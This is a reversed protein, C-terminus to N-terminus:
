ANEGIPDTPGPGRRRCPRICCISPAPRSGPLSAPKAPRLYFAPVPSLIVAGPEAAAQMTRLHALTLPAERALTVPPRREKLQVPLANIGALDEQQLPCQAAGHAVGGAEDALPVPRRAYRPPIPGQRRLAAPPFATMEHRLSLSAGIRALHGRAKAFALVARRDPFPSRSRLPIQSQIM